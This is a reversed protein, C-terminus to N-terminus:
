ACVVLLQGIACVVLLPGIAAHRASAAAGRNADLASAWGPPLGDGEEADQEPCAHLEAM